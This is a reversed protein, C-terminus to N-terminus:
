FAGDRVEFHTPKSLSTGGRSLWDAIWEFAQDFGIQPAGFLRECESANSLLATESETGTVLPDVNFRRGFRQAIARVTHTEAGTVNLVFPPTRCHAFARLCVSNADGQWICNLAPMTVDVPQGQFVKRGIDALVGYRLEVAYNLRLITLPAANLASFYEFIRERALASQAYEGIPAVPTQETAGGSAVTTLPYVNGTSWAVIRSNAYRQAVLGPLYANVAWTAPQDGITGFKRAAMYIVNPADPLADLAGPRLLDASVTRVGASQLQQEVGPTSFRAVAIVRHATGAASIARAARRALSPGMKGGAGLLILDGSLERVAEIDATTPRSLIDELQEETCVTTENHM